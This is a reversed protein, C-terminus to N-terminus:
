QPLQAVRSDLPQYQPWQGAAMADLTPMPQNLRMRYIWFSAIVKELYFRTELIPISEMFLLPDNRYDIEAMWRGVNGPGANYSALMRIIDGDATPGSLLDRVYRQGLEMNLEPEYLAVRNGGRYNTGGVLSATGPMLQMLGTAGAHSVATPNFRSEERMIAHILAQDIRLGGAPQWHGVPYLAGDYYRGVGPQASRGILIALRPLEATEALAILAQHMAPNGRAAVERLELEAWELQGAELLAIGRQGAPIGSVTAIHAPTLSQVTFDFVPDTGLVRNAMLGYFTRPYQAAERLWRTASRPDRARLYARHAWYAGGAQWWASACQANAVTTFQQAALAFDGMRWAALGATWGARPAYTGAAAAATQAEALARQDDGYFYYGAAVDARLRGYVIPDLSARQGELYSLAQSMQDNRIYRRVRSEATGGADSYSCRAVGYREVDSTAPDRVVSPVALGRASSGGRREALAYIRDAIAHDSYQSLWDSLEDFSSTWATPHLYRQALVYGMLTRDQLQGILRDAGGMDGAEQLAFIQRYREVDTAPLNRGTAGPNSPLTIGQPTIAVQVPPDARGVGVCAILAVAALALRRRVPRFDLDTGFSSTM